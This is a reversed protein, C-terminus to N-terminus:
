LPGDTSRFHSGCRAARSGSAGSISATRLLSAAPSDPAALRFSQSSRLVEASLNAVSPSGGYPLAPGGDDDGDGDSEVTGVEETDVVISRAVAVCAPSSRCADLFTALTRYVIPALRIGKDDLFARYEARATEYQAREEAVMDVHRRVVRYEAVCDALLRRREEGTELYARRKAQKAVELQAAAGEAAAPEPPAALATGAFLLCAGLRAFIDVKM